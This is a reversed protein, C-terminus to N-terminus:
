IKTDPTFLQNPLHDTKLSFKTFTRLRRQLRTPRTAYRTPRRAKCPRSVWHACGYSRSCPTGSEPDTVPVLWRIHGRAAVSSLIYIWAVRLLSLFLHWRAYVELCMTIIYYIIWMCAYIFNVLGLTRM